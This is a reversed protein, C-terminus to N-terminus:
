VSCMKSFKYGAEVLWIFSLSAFFAIVPMKFIGVWVPLFLSRVLVIDRM